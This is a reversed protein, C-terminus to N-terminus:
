MQFQEHNSEIAPPNEFFFVYVSLISHVLHGHQQPIQQRHSANVVVVAVIQWQPPGHHHSKM